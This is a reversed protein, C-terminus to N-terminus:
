LGRTVNKDLHKIVVLPSLVVQKALDVDGCLLELVTVGHLAPVDELVLGLFLFARLLTLNAELQVERNGVLYKLGKVKVSLGKRSRATPRQSSSTM